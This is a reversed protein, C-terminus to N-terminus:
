LQNEVPVENENSKSANAADNEPPSKQPLPITSPEIQIIEIPLSLEKAPIIKIVGVKNEEDASITATLMNQIKVKQDLLLKPVNAIISVKQIPLETDGVVPEILLTYDKQVTELVISIDATITTEGILDVIAPELDLPIQRQISKSAGNINIVKTRLIEYQALVTEPGTISIFEPDMTLAQLIYGPQPNGTTVPNIPFQKTILKDLSLIISSPQVRLVTVGRPVEISDLDNTIVTTGPTAKSLDIQRTIQKNDIELILARPGNVTVDIVKKFQNSIVLDRPLNIVEVPIMVNKDVRQEGGVFNWLAIALVLSILMPIWEKAILRRWYTRSFPMMM